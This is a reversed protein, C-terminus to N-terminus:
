TVKQSYLLYWMKLPSPFISLINM